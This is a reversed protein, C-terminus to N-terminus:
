KVWNLQPEPFRDLPIAGFLIPANRRSSWPLGPNSLVRQHEKSETVWTAYCPHSKTLYVQKGGGDTVPELVFNGEKDGAVRAIYGPYLKQSQPSTRLDLQELGYECKDEYLVKFGMHIRDKYVAGAIANIALATGVNLAAGGAASTPVGAAGAVASPVGGANDTVRPASGGGGEPFRSDYRAVIIMSGRTQKDQISACGSLLALGLLALPIVTRSKMNPEWYTFHIYCHYPVSFAM